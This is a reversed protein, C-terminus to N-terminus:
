ESAIEIEYYSPHIYSQMYVLPEEESNYTTKELLILPISTKEELEKNKEKMIEFIESNNDLVIYRIKMKVPFSATHESINLEKSLSAGKNLKKIMENSLKDSFIYREQVKWIIDNILAIQRIQIIKDKGTKSGLKLSLEKDKYPSSVKTITQEEIKQTNREKPTLESFLVRKHLLHRRVYTGKGQRRILIGENVLDNLAKVVTTNSVSYKEKLDSESYIKEGAKFIGEDIKEIIDKKIIEYKPLM